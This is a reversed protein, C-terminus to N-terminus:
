RGNVLICSSLLNDAQHTNHAPTPAVDWDWLGNRKVKRECGLRFPWDIENGILKMALSRSGHGPQCPMGFSKKKVVGNGGFSVSRKRTSFRCSHCADKMLNLVPFLAYRILLCIWNWGRPNNMQPSKLHWGLAGVFALNKMQLHLLYFTVSAFWFAAM